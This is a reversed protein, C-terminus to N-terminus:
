RLAHTRMQLERRQARARLRPAIVWAFFPAALFSFVVIAPLLVPAYPVLPPYSLVTIAGIGFLVANVVMSILLAIAFRNSM